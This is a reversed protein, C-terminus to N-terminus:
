GWVVNITYAAVMLVTVISLCLSFRYVDDMNM